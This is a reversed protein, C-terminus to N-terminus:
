GKVQVAHVTEVTLPAGRGNAVFLKVKLLAWKTQSEEPTTRPQPGGQQGAAGAAMAGPTGQQGADGTEARNVPRGTTAGEDELPPETPLGLDIPEATIRWQLGGSDGEFVGPARVIRELETEILSRAVQEAALTSRARDLGLRATVMGRQAVVAVVAFVILAVLTEILTFGARDRARRM